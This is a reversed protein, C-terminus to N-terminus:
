IGGGCAIFVMEAPSYFLGRLKRRPTTASVGVRVQSGVWQL